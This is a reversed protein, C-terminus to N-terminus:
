RGTGPAPRNGPVMSRVRRWLRIGPRALLLLLLPYYTSAPVLLTVALAVLYCLFSAVAPAPDPRDDSDRISRDRGIAWCLAALLASSLAMTGIYFVKTAAQSGVDAVLATPFPLVVITLTWGMLLRNVLPSHTVVSHLARHQDFWLNAIVLFSLLFALLQTSHDALLTGVSGSGLTTALDVLPLVLLTIAIAVIADVFTLFREFDRTRDGQEDGM